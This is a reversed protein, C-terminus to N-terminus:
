PTPSPSPAVPFVYRPCTIPRAISDSSLAAPSISYCPAPEPPRLILAALMLIIVIMGVALIRQATM